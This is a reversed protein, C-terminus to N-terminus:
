GSAAVRIRRPENQMTVTSTFPRTKWIMIIIIAYVLVVLGALIFSIGATAALVFANNVSHAIRSAVANQLQWNIIDAIIAFLIASMIMSLENGSGSYSYIHFMGFVVAAVLIASFHRDLNSAMVKANLTKSFAFVLAFFFFVVTALYLQSVALTVIGAFIFLIPMRLKTFTPVLFSARFSEEAEVAFIAIVVLLAIDSSSASSTVVGISFPLDMKFFSLVNQGFILSSILLFGFGEGVLLSWFLKKDDKITGYIVERTFKNRTILAFGMGAFTIFFIPLYISGYSKISSSALFDFMFPLMLLIFFSIVYVYDKNNVGGNVFVDNRDLSM